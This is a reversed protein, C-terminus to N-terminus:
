IKSLGADFEIFINELCAFARKKPNSQIQRFISLTLSWWDSDQVKFGM